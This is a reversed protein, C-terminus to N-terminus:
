PPTLDTPIFGSESNIGLQEGRSRFGILNSQGGKTRYAWYDLKVYNKEIPILLLGAAVSPNEGDVSSKDSPRFLARVRVQMVFDGEVDRLLRPANFRERKPALDHDKGPVEITLTDADRIFKCDGDPDKPEDWGTKFPQRKPAPAALVAYSILLLLLACISRSM